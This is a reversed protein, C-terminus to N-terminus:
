FQGARVARVLYPYSQLYRLSSGDFMSVYWACGAPSEADVTSTWIWEYDAFDPFFEKPLAPYNARDPIFFAEEVTPLRWSWGNIDLKEAYNAAAKFTLEKPSRYASVILPQALLDNEIRVALHKETSDAPMVNGAADLKFYRNMPIGKTQTM